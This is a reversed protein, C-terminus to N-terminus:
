LKKVRIFDPMHYQLVVALVDLGQFLRLGWAMLSILLKDDVVVKVPIDHNLYVRSTFHVRCKAFLSDYRFKMNVPSSLVQCM